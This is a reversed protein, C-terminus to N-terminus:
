PASSGRSFCDWYLRLWARDTSVNLLNLPKLLTGRAHLNSLDQLQCLIVIGTSDILCRFVFRLLSKLSVSLLVKLLATSLCLETKVVGTVGLCTHIKQFVLIALRFNAERSRTLRAADTSGHAACKEITSLIGVRFIVRTSLLIVRLRYSRRHGCMLSVKSCRKVLFVWM